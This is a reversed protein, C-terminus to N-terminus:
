ASWRLLLRLPSTSCSQTGYWQGCDVVAAHLQTVKRKMRVPLSQLYVIEWTFNNTGAWWVLRIFYCRFIAGALKNPPASRLTQLLQKNRPPWLLDQGEREREGERKREKERGCMGVCTTNTSLVRTCTTCRKQNQHRYTVHFTPTQYSQISPITPRSSGGFPYLCLSLPIGGASYIRRYKTAFNIEVLKYFCM